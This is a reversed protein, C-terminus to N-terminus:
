LSRVSALQDPPLAPLPLHTRLDLLGADAAPPLQPLGTSRSNHRIKGNEGAPPFLFGESGTPLDVTARVALWTRITEVTEKEIELRRNLRRGKRNDWTLLWEGDAYELCDKWLEAIEYPRRGTDRLLEHGAHAM